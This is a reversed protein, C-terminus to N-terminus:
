RPGDGPAYHAEGPWPALLLLIRADGLARLSHREGPPFTVLTGAAAEVTGDGCSISVDGAVVQITAREHVSHEGLEDGARLDLLVARCEPASFLM